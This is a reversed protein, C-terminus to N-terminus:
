DEPSEEVDIDKEKAFVAFDWDHELIHNLLWGKMFKLVDDGTVTESHFFRNQYDKVQVKLKAHEQEHEGRKPYALEEMLAEECSFHFVTYERLKSIVNSLTRPGRNLNVANILGNAIRILEKHQTDIEDNLTSLESSWVLKSM